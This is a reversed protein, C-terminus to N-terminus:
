RAPVRLYEPPVESWPLFAQMTKARCGHDECLVLDVPQQSRTSLQQGYLANIEPVSDLMVTLVSLLIMVILSVDFRRGAQTDAEFIIIRLKDRLTM